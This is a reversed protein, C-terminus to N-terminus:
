IQEGNPMLDWRLSMACVEAGDRTMGKDILREKFRERQRALYVRGCPILNCYWEMVRVSREELSVVSSRCGCGECVLHYGKEQENYIYSM